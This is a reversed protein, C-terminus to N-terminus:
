IHEIIQQPYMGTCQPRAARMSTATPFSMHAGTAGACVCVCVCVCVCHTRHKMYCVVCRKLVEEGLGFLMCDTLIYLISFQMQKITKHECLKVSKM